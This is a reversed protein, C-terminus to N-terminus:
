LNPQPFVCAKTGDAKGSTHPEPSSDIVFVVGLSVKLDKVTFTHM